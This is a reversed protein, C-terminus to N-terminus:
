PPVTVTLPTSANIGTTPDTAKVMTPGVGASSALGRSGDANSITAVGQASSDWTVVSTLDQITNDTYTGLATFQLDTGLAISQNAPTVVLSVLAADTVTLTTSANIGTTPDTAKVTTLGKGVSSALGRSGDANSITAVGTVSSEWNVFGTRDQTTTDTYTGTATFQQSTGLAISPNAPTIALSV